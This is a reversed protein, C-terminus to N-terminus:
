YHRLSFWFFKWFFIRSQQFLHNYSLKGGGAERNQPVGGEKKFNM